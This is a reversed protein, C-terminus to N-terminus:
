PTVRSPVSVTLPVNRMSPRTDNGTAEIADDEGFAANFDLGLTYDGAFNMRGAHDDVRAANEIAAAM